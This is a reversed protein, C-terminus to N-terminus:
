FYSIEPVGNDANASIPDGLYAQTPPAYQTPPNSLIAGDISFSAGPDDGAFAGSTPFNYQNTLTRVMPRSRAKLWLMNGPIPGTAYRRHRHATDFGYSNVKANPNNRHDNTNFGGAVMGISAPVKPVNDEGPVPNYFGNWNDQKSLMQPLFLRKLGAGTNSAHIRLSDLLQRTSGERRGVIDVQDAMKALPNEHSFPAANYNSPTQDGTPDQSLLGSPLGYDSNDDIMGDIPRMLGPYPGMPVNEWPYPSASEGPIGHRPDAIGGQQEFPPAEPNSIVYGTIGSIGTPPAM